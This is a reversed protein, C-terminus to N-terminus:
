TNLFDISIQSLGESLIRIREYYKESLIKIKEIM